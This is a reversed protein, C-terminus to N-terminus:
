GVGCRDLALDLWLSADWSIIKWSVPPVSAVCGSQDTQIHIQGNSNFFYDNKIALAGFFRFIKSFIGFKTGVLRYIGGM